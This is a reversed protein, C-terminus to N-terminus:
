QRLFSGSGLSMAMMLFSLMPGMHLFSSFYEMGYLIMSSDSKLAPLYSGTSPSNLRTIRRNLRPRWETGSSSLAFTSDM